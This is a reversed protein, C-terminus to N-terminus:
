NANETRVQTHSLHFYEDSYKGTKQSQIELADYNPDRVIEKSKKDIVNNEDELLIKIEAKKGTLQVSIM